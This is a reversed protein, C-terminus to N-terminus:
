SLNGKAYSGKFAAVTVVVNDHFDNEPTWMTEGATTDSITVYTVYMIMALLLLSMIHLKISM